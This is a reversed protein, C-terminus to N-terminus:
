KQSIFKKINEIERAIQNKSKSSILQNIFFEKQSQSLKSIKQHNPNLFFNWVFTKLLSPYKLYSELIQIMSKSNVSEVEFISHFIKEILKSSFMLLIQQHAQTNMKNNEIIEKFMRIVALPVETSYQYDLYILGFEFIKESSENLLLDHNVQNVRIFFKFSSAIFDENGKETFKTKFIQKYIFEYVSKTLYKNDTGIFSVILNLVYSYQFHEFFSLILKYCKEYFELSEQHIGLSQIISTLTKCLEEIVEVDNKYVKFIMEFLPYLKMIMSSLIPQPNTGDFARFILINLNSSQM